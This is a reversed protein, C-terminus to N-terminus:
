SNQTSVQEYVLPYMNHVAKACNDTMVGNFFETIIEARRKDDPSVEEAWHAENLVEQIVLGTYDQPWIMHLALCYKNIGDRLQHGDPYKGAKHPGRAEKHTSKCFQDLTVKVSRNHLKGLTVESLHGTLGIHDMPFNRIVSERKKPVLKYWHKPHALPQRLGRAPHLRKVGDDTQKKFRHKEPKGDKSFAEEGLNKKEEEAAIRVQLDLMQDLTHVYVWSRKRLEPPRQEIPWARGLLKWVMRGMIRQAETLHQVSSESSVSSDSDNSDSTESSESSPAKGQKKRRKKKSKKANEGATESSSSSDASSHKRKKSKQRRKNRSKSKKKKKHGNEGSATEATSCHFCVTFLHNNVLHKKRSFQM